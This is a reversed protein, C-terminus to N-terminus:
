VNMIICLHVYNSMKSSAHLEHCLTLVSFLVKLINVIHVLAQSSLMKIGRIFLNLPQIQLLHVQVYFHQFIGFFINDSAFNQLFQRMFNSYSQTVSQNTLLM